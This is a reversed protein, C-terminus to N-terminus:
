KPTSGKDFCKLVALEKSYNEIAGYYEMLYDVDEQLHRDITMLRIGLAVDSSYGQKKIQHENLGSVEYVNHMLGLHLIDLNPPNVSRISYDAM